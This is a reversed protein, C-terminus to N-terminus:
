LYNPFLSMLLSMNNANDSSILHDCNISSLSRLVCWSQICINFLSKELMQSIIIIRTINATEENLWNIYPCCFFFGDDNMNWNYRVILKHQSRQWITKTHLFNIPKSIVCIRQSSNHFKVVILSSLETTSLKLLQIM